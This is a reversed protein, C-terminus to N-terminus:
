TKENGFSGSGIKLHPSPTFSASRAASWESRDLSSIFFTHVKVAMPVCKKKARHKIKAIFKILYVFTLLSRATNMQFADFCNRTDKGFWRASSVSKQKKHRYLNFVALARYLVM